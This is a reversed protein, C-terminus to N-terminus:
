GSRQTRQGAVGDLSAGVARKFSLVSQSIQIFRQSSSATESSRVLRLLRQRAGILRIRHALGHILLLSAVVIIIM